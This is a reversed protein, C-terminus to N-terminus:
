TQAAAEKARHGTEAWGTGTEGQVLQMKFTDWSVRNEDLYSRIESEKKVWKKRRPNQRSQGVRVEKRRVRKSEKM